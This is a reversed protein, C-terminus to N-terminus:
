RGSSMSLESEAFAINTTPGTDALIKRAILRTMPYLISFHNAGNVPHSHVLPNTSLRSIANLSDINSQETGEFVFTPKKISHLWRAPARLEFERDNATDFPLFELGYNHLDDVPGFSFVARFRDSAAAVLLVLTGGTSHGGLYIREPDVYEQGALFNAAAIVDDVEGFFGEKFGPNTNGGRLSPFMQVIGADRFAKASQENERPQEQWLADDITNCDGGTIWVIAPRRQGDGPDPTVYASLSGAPSEYQVISFVESPPKPLPQGAKEQRALRTTFGKRAEALSIKKDAEARPGGIPDSGGLGCGTLVLLSIAVFHPLRM